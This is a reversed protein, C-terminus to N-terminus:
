VKQRWFEASGAATALVGRRRWRAPPAPSPQRLRVLTKVASSLRRNARGNAAVSECWLLEVLTIQRGISRLFRKSTTEGFRALKQLSEHNISGVDKM